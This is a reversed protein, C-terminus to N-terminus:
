FMAFFCMIWWHACLVCILSKADHSLGFEERERERGCASVKDGRLKLRVFRMADRDGRDERM